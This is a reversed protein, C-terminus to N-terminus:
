ARRTRIVSKVEKEEAERAVREAERQEETVVCM